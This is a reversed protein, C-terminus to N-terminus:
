KIRFSIIGVVWCVVSLLVGAIVSNWNIITRTLSEVALVGFLIQAIDCSISSIYDTRRSLYKVANNFNNKV